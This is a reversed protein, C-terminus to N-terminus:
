FILISLEKKGCPKCRFRSGSNIYYKNCEDCLEVLYPINNKNYIIQMYGRSFNKVVNNQRINKFTKFTNM